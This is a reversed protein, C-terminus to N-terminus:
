IAIYEGATEVGAVDLTYDYGLRVGAAALRSVTNGFATQPTNNQQSLHGLMIRTAGSEVLELIYDASDANSLHGRHSKIRDKTFQPYSANNRLLQTDYNSEIFVFDAGLTSERVEATIEGLDTFYATKYGSPCTIIFGVSQASDHPTSFAEVELDLGAADLEDLDFLRDSNYVHEKELLRGCTGCSAYVPIDNHKTLQMLGKVHDIHEHTILVAKIASLEIGCLSLFGRLKKYSCGADILVGSDRNGIFTANAASSSCLPAIIM